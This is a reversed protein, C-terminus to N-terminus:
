NRKRILGVGVLALGVAGFTEPEPTSPPTEFYDLFLNGTAENVARSIITANAGVDFGNAFSGNNFSSAIFLAPIAPGSSFGGTIETFQSTVVAGFLDSVPDPAFGECHVTANAGAAFGGGDFVAPNPICTLSTATSVVSFAALASALWILSKM